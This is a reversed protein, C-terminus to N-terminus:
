HSLSFFCAYGQFVDKANRLVQKGRHHPSGALDISRERVELPEQWWGHDHDLAAFAGLGDRRLKMDSPLQVLRGFICADIDDARHIGAFTPQLTGNGM